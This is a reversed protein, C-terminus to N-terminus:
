TYASRKRSMIRLGARHRSMWFMASKERTRVRALFLERFTNSITAAFEWSRISNSDFRSMKALEGSIALKCDASSHAWVGTLNALPELEPVDVIGPPKARGTPDFLEFKRTVLTKGNVALGVDWEGLHETNQPGQFETFLTRNSESYSADFVWPADIDEWGTGGESVEHPRSTKYHIVLRDGRRIRPLQFEYGIVAGDEKPLRNAPEVHYTLRYERIKENPSDKGIM